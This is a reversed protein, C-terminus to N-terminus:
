AVCWLPRRFHFPQNTYWEFARRGLTVAAPPGLRGRRGPSTDLLPSGRDVAKKTHSVQKYRPKLHEQAM